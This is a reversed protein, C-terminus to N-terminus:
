KIKKFNLIRKQLLKQRLVPEQIGFFEGGIGPAGVPEPGLEAGQNHLVLAVQGEQELLSAILLLHIENLYSLYSCKVCYLVLCLM